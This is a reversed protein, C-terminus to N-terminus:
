RVRLNRAWRYKDHNSSFLAPYHISYLKRLFDDDVLSAPSGCMAPFRMIPLKALESGGGSM